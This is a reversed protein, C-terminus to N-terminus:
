ETETDTRVTKTVTVRDTNTSNSSNGRLLAVLLLIFVIGGVIWVWPETYWENTVTSTTTIKTKTTDQAFVMTQYFSVALVLMLAKFRIKIAEKMIKIKSTLLFTVLEITQIIEKLLQVMKPLQFQNGSM